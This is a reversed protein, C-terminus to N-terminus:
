SRRHVDREVRRYQPVFDAAFSHMQLNQGHSMRRRDSSEKGEPLMVCSLLSKEAEAALEAFAHRTSCRRISLQTLELSGFVKQSTGIMGSHGVSARVTQALPNRFVVKERRGTLGPLNLYNSEGVSM